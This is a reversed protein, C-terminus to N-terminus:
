SLIIIIYDELLNFLFFLCHWLWELKTEHERVFSKQRKDAFQIFYFQLKLNNYHDCHRKGRFPNGPGSSICGGTSFSGAM